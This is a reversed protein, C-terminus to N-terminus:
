TNSHVQSCRCHFLYVVNRLAGPSFHWWWICHWIWSVWPSPSTKGRQFSACHITSSWSIPSKSYHNKEITISLIAPILEYFLSFLGEYNKITLLIMEIIWICRNTLSLIYQHYGGGFFHGTDLLFAGGRSNLPTHLWGKMSMVGLDVRVWFSLVQLSGM